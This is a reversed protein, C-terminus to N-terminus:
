LGKLEKKTPIVISIHTYKPHSQLNLTGNMSCIRSRLNKLGNGTSSSMKEQVDFGTSGNDIIDILIRDGQYRLQIKILNADSHKLANTLAERIAHSLSIVERHSLTPRTQSPEPFDFLIERDGGCQQYISKIQEIILSIMSELDPQGNTFGNIILRLDNLSNNLLKQAGELTLRGTQAQISGIALTSGLGDHLDRLIASRETEIAQSIYSKMNLQKQFIAFVGIFAILLYPLALLYSLFNVALHFEPIGFTRLLPNLTVIAGTMSMADNIIPISATSFLISLCFLGWNKRLFAQIVFNVFVLTLLSLLCIFLGERAYNAYNAYHDNLLITISAFCSYLLLSITIYLPFKIKALFFNLRLFFFIFATFLIWSSLQWPLWFELPLKEINVEVHWLLGFLLTFFVLWLKPLDKYKLALILSIVTSFLCIFQIATPYASDWKHYSLMLNLIAKTDGFYIAGLDGLSNLPNLHILVVRKDKSSEINVKSILATHLKVQKDSTSGAVNFLEVDDIYAVGGDPLKPILIGFHNGKLQRQDIEFKVWISYPTKSAFHKAKIPLNSTEWLTQDEPNPQAISDSYNVQAESIIQIDDTISTELAPLYYFILSLITCILYPNLLHTFYKKKM